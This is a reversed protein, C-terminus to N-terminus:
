AQALMVDVRGQASVTVNDALAKSVMCGREAQLFCGQVAGGFLARGAATLYVVPQHEIATLVPGTPTSAFIGRSSNRLEEYAVGELQLIAALTMLYCSNAAAVLLEEPNTGRGKGGLEAPVSIQQEIAGAHLRGEGEMLTGNWKGECVFAHEAAM